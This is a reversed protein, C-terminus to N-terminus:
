FVMDRESWPMTQRNPTRNAHQLYTRLVSGILSGRFHCSTKRLLPLTALENDRPCSFRVIRLGSTRIPFQSKMMFILQFSTRFNREPANKDRRSRAPIKGPIV